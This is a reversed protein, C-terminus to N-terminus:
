CEPQEKRQFSLPPPVRSARYLSPPLYQKTHQTTKTQKKLYPKETSCLRPSVKYVLNANFECLDAQM